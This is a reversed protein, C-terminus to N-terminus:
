PLNAVDFWYKKLTQMIDLMTDFSPPKVIYSNAGSDYSYIIDERNKSTTLVVVPITKLVPHSKIERLAERGDKKPLNLDLLILVPLSSGRGSGEELASILVHMLEAGDKVFRHEFSFGNQELAERIILRDDPDDEAILVFLSKDKRTKMAKMNYEKSFAV